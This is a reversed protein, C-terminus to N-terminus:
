STVEAIGVVDSPKANSHYYPVLDGPKMKERMLNRAQYNCVGTWPTKGTARSITSPTTM